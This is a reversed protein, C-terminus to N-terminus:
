IGNWTRLARLTAIRNAVTESSPSLREHPLTEWSPFILSRVGWTTLSDSMAQAENGTATVLLVLKPERCMAAILPARAGDELSLAPGRLQNAADALVSSV